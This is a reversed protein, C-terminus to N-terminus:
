ARETVLEVSRAEYLLHLFREVELQDREFCHRVYFSGTWTLAQGATPATTFTVLGASNISYNAPTAQLVGARFIQPAGNLDFVPEVFGGFNRVLQFATTTGNGTGFQMATVANDDPVSYLFSDFSGGRKNFFGVLTQLEAEAGARLVEYSLVRRYRPYSADRAKYVRQSPTRRQLVPPALVTTRVRIGLGALTPYIENSM